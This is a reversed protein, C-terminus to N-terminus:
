DGFNTAPGAPRPWQDIGNTMLLNDSVLCLSITDLARTNLSFQEFNLGRGFSFSSRPWQDTMSRPPAAAAAAPEASAARKGAMASSQAPCKAGIGGLQVSAWAWASAWAVLQCSLSILPPLFNGPGTASPRLTWTHPILSGRGSGRLVAARCTITRVHNNACLYSLFAPCGFAASTPDGGRMDHLERRLRMSRLLVRVLYLLFPSVNLCRQDSSAQYRRYAPARVRYNSM